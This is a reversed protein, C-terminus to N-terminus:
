NKTSLFWLISIIHIILRYLNLSTTWNNFKIWSNQDLPHVGNRLFIPSKLLEILFVVNHLELVRCIYRFYNSTILTNTTRYQLYNDLRDLEQSIHDCLAGTRNFTKTRASGTIETFGFYNRVKIWDRYIITTCM